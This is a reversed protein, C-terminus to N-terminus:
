LSTSKETLNQHSGPVEISTYNNGGQFFFFGICCLVFLEEM